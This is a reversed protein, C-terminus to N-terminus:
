QSKSASVAATPQYMGWAGQVKKAYDKIRNLEFIATLIELRDMPSLDDWRAFDEQSVSLQVLAPLKDALLAVMSTISGFPNGNGLKTLDLSGLLGVIMQLAAAERSYNWRRVVMVGGDELPVARERKSLADPLKGLVTDAM